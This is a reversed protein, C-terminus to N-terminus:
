CPPKCVECWCNDSPQWSDPDVPTLTINTLSPNKRALLFVGPAQTDTRLDVVWIPLAGAIRIMDAQTYRWHDGPNPHYHYHPSRTTILLLGGPKTVDILQQICTRWDHVHELLETAIVVDFEEGYNNTLQTADCVVDVGPGPEIDVGVYQTPGLSEIHARVTGNRNHSGVELITKGAINDTTLHKTVFDMVSQHM